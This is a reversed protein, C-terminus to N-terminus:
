TFFNLNEYFDFEDWLILSFLAATYICTTIGMGVVTHTLQKIQIICM